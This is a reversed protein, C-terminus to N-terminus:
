FKFISYLNTSFRFIVFIKESQLSWKFLGIRFLISKRHVGLISSVFFYYKYFLHCWPCHLFLYPYQFHQSKRNLTNTFVPCPYQFNPNKLVNKRCQDHWIMTLLFGYFQFFSVLSFFNVWFIFNQNERFLQSIVRCSITPMNAAWNIIDHLSIPVLKDGGMFCTNCNKVVWRQVYLLFINLLIVKVFFTITRWSSIKIFLELFDIQSDITSVNMSRSRKIRYYCSFPHFDNEVSAPCKKGVRVSWYLKKNELKEYAIIWLRHIM